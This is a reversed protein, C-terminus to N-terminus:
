LVTRNPASQPRSPQFTGSSPPGERILAMIIALLLAHLAIGLWIVYPQVGGLDRILRERANPDLNQKGRIRALHDKVHWFYIYNGSVGAMIRWVIGVTFDGTLYASVVPGIAYIAAYLYMKRYLFWLFPDFLFAPWNWTLAFRPTPSTTFKRFRELYRDANPGIFERWLHADDQPAVETHSSFPAGCQQCFNADSPNQQGCKECTKVFDVM